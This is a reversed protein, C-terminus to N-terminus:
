IQRCIGSTSGERITVHPDLAPGDRHQHALVPKAVPMRQGGSLERLVKAVGPYDGKRSGNAIRLVAQAPRAIGRRHQKEVAVGVAIHGVPASPTSPTQSNPEFLM